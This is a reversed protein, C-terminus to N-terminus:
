SSSTDARPDTAAKAGFATKMAAENPEHAVDFSRSTSFSRDFLKSVHSFVASKPRVITLSAIRMCFIPRFVGSKLTLHPARHKFRNLSKTVGM